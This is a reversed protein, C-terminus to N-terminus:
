DVEHVVRGGIVTLVAETRPLADSPVTLVDQSLVALDALKGVEISGKEREALEAYAAGRTYAPLAEERTLAESPNRPHSAAIMLNLWPNIPGDSGIAIPIGQRVASALAAFRVTGFRRVMLDPFLFHTPNQVLLVGAEAGQPLLEGIFDGHEVRVRKARWDVGPHKKMEAFLEELMRDGSIHLLLQQDTAAAIRVM